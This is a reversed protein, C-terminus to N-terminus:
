SRRRGVPGGGHGVARCGVAGVAFAGIAGTVSAGTYLAATAVQGARSLHAVQVAFTSFTTLGGCFGTGAGDRVVLRAAPRTVEATLLVGLILSGAVNVALVPWPFQGAGSPGALAWRSAAGLAGGVTVAALRSPTWPEPM